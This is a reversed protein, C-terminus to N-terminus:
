EKKERMEKLAKKYPKKQSKAPGKKVNDFNDRLAHPNYIINGRMHKVLAKWAEKRRKIYDPFPEGPRREM